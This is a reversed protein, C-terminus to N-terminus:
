YKVLLNINSKSKQCTSLCSHFFCPENVPKKFFIRVQPFPGNQVWFNRMRMVRSRSSYNKLFTACHFPSIPLHSHHYYHELFKKSPAFPGNQAGFHHMRTVRSGSYSNKLIKCWLDPWYTSSLLLLPKYCFIKQEHCIPWKSSLFPM